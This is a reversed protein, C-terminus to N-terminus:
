EKSGLFDNFIALHTDVMKEITNERAKEIAKERMSTPIEKGVLALLSAEQHVPDLIYGNVGDEILNLGANTHTSCIVPTGQSLSENVVHGYIDENTPFISADAYSFLKLVAEHDQFPIMFVNKLGAEEIEKQFSKKLPGSGVLVLANEKGVKKWVDILFGMNKRESFSGVSVYVNKFSEPHEGLVGLSKWGELKEGKSLPKKQIEAEKVTSYPYIHIKKPDAGYYVLYEASKQDPSLYLSAGSIFKTKIKKKLESEGKKVIGGNIAFVYPIKKRKLYSIFNMEALTSYGNVITLDPRSKRHIKPIGLHLCNYDGLKISRLIKAKFNGEEEVKPYWSKARDGESHREYIAFVGETKEALSKHFVVKYPAPHNFLWFIRM